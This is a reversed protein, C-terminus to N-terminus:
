LIQQIVFSRCVLDNLASVAGTWEVFLQIENSLTTTLLSASSNMKGFYADVDNNYHFTSAGIVSGGVGLARIVADVEFDFGNFATVNDLGIVGSTAITTGGFKLLFNISQGGGATRLVGAAKIRFTSGVELTSAPITRTGLGAGSVEQEGATLGNVTTTVTQSFDIQRSFQLSKSALDYRLTDGDEATQNDTPMIYEFGAPISGVSLGARLNTDGTAQLDAFVGLGSADIRANVAGLNDQIKLVQELGTVGGSKISLGQGVDTVVEPSASLNYADQLNGSIGGGGGQGSTVSVCNSMMASVDVSSAATSTCRIKTTINDNTSLSVVASTSTSRPYPSTDDMQFNMIGGALVGNVFVGIEFQQNAGATIESTCQFSYKFTKTDIGTYTLTTAQSTFDKLSGAVRTGLIDTWANLISFVTPTLNGSFSQEGYSSEPLSEWTVVGSGDTALYQGLTGDVTPLTYAGNVDLKSVITRDPELKLPERRAAGGFPDYAWVINNDAIIHEVCWLKSTSNLPNFKILNRGESSLTMFSRNLSQLDMRADNVDLVDGVKLSADAGAAPKIVVIGDGVSPLVLINGCVLQGTDRLLIKGDPGFKTETPEFNVRTSGNKELTLVDPATGLQKLMFVDSGNDFTLDGQDEARIKISASNDFTLDGQDEARIKISASNASVSLSALFGLSPDADGIILRSTEGPVGTIYSFAPGITPQHRVFRQNFVTLDDKV